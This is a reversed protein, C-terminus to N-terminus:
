LLLQQLERPAGHRADRSGAFALAATLVAAAAAATVIGRPAASISAAVAVSAAVGLTRHEQRQECLMIRADPGRAFSSVARLDDAVLADAAARRRERACGAEIRTTERRRRRPEGLQDEGWLVGPREDGDERGVRHGRLLSHRAVADPVM